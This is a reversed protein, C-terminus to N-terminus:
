GPATEPRFVADLCGSKEPTTRVSHCVSIKNSATSYHTSSVANSIRFEILLTNEHGHHHQSDRGMSTTSLHFSHTSVGWGNPVPDQILFIVTFDRVYPTCPLPPIYLTLVSYDTGLGYLTTSSTIPSYFLVHYISPM